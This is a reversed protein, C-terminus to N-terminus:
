RSGFSYTFTLGAERRPTVMAGSAPGYYGSSGFLTNLGMATIAPTGLSTSLLRETDLVNKVFLSGEWAGNPSRLGM